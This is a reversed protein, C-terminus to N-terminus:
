WYSLNKRTKKFTRNMERMKLTKMTRLKQCLVWVVLIFPPSEAIRMKLNSSM